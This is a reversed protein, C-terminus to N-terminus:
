DAADLGELWDITRDTWGRPVAHGGDFIELRLATGPDCATWSRVWREASTEFANARHNDCGNARRWVDMAHFVDGQVFGSGVVRGELPVTGDRWGHVHRLRVPGACGEPHPRWFSGGVPVYAAFAEPAACALYSAMSGGISFGGLASRAADIGHAEAAHGLVGRIFAIEDRPGPRQPHFGWSRGNRGRRPVGDPAILAWGRATVSTELLRMMAEGNAGWGHLFVLARPREVGEPLAIHYTGGPAECAAADNGCAAEATGAFLAACLALAARASARM